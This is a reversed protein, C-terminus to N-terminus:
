HCKQCPDLGRRIAEDLTIKVPNKMNSCTPMSHYKTENPGALWVYITDDPRISPDLALTERIQRLLSEYVTSDAATFTSEISLYGTACGAAISGFYHGDKEVLKYDVSFLAEASFSSDLTKSGALVYLGQIVPEWAQATGLEMLSFSVSFVYSTGSSEGSIELSDGYLGVSATGADAPLRFIFSGPQYTITDAMATPFALCVVVILVWFLAKKM